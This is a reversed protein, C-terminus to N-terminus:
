NFLWHLKQRIWGMSGNCDTEVLGGATLLSGGGGTPPLLLPIARRTYDYILLISVSAVWDKMIGAVIRM